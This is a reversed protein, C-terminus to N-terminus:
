DTSSEKQERYDRYWRNITMPAVDLLEAARRQTINGADLERMAAIRGINRAAAEVAHASEIRSEAAAKSPANYPNNATFAGASDDRPLQGMVLYTAAEVLERTLSALEDPRQDRLALEASGAFGQMIAITSFKELLDLTIASDTRALRNEIEKRQRALEHQIAKIQEPPNTAM